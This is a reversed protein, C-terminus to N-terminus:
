AFELSGSGQFFSTSQWTGGLDFVMVFAASATPNTRGDLEGDSTGSVYLLGNTLDLAMGFAQPHAFTKHKSDKFVVWDISNVM